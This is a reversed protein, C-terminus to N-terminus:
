KKIAICVDVLHMGQPHKDPDNKYLEFMPGDLPILKNEEIYNFTDKWAKEYDNQSIEFSGVVYKGESIEMIEIEEEPLTGETVTFGVSIRQEGEPVSEPYDHYVTIAEMDANILDKAYLWGMVQKFLKEFLETNGMYPGVHSIYALNRKPFEVIKISSKMMSM